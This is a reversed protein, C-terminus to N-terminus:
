VTTWVARPSQMLFHPELMFGKEEIAAADEVM